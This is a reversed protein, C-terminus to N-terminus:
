HGKTEANKDRLGSIAAYMWSPAVPLEAPDAWADSAVAPETFEDESWLLDADPTAAPFSALSQSWAVALDGDDYPQNSNTAPEQPLNLNDTLGPKSTRFQVVLLLFLAAAAASLLCVAIRTAKQRRSPRAPERYVYDGTAASEYVAAALEVAEAVAERATQDEALRQEFASRADAPLEDAVYRFALWDLENHEQPNM